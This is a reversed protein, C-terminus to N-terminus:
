HNSRQRTLAYTSPEIGKVGALKVAQVSLSRQWADNDTNALFSAEM